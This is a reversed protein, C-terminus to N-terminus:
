SFLLHTDQFTYALPLHLIAMALNFTLGVLISIDLSFFLNAVAVLPCLSKFSLCSSSILCNTLRTLYLLSNLFFTDIVRQGTTMPADPKLKRAYPRGKRAPWKQMLTLEKDGKETEVVCVTDVITFEGAKIEKITGKVGYPVM